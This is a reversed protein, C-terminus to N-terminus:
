HTTEGAAAVMALQTAMEIVNGVFDTVEIKTLVARGRSNCFPCVYLDDGKYVIGDKPVRLDKLPVLHECTKLRAM